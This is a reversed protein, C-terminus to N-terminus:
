KLVVGIKKDGEKAGIYVEQNEELLLAKVLDLPIKLYLTNGFRKIISRYKLEM